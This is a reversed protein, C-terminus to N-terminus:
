VWSGGDRGVRSLLGPRGSISPSYRKPFYASGKGNLFFGKEWSSLTNESTRASRGVFWLKGNWSNVQANYRWYWGSSDWAKLAQPQQSTPSPTKAYKGIEEKPPYLFAIEAFGNFEEIPQVYTRKCVATFKYTIRKWRWKTCPPSPIVTSLRKEVSKLVKWCEQYLDVYLTRHHKFVNLM